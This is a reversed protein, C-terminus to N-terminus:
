PATPPFITEILRSGNTSPALETAPRGETVYWWRADTAGELIFRRILGGGPAERARVFERVLLGDLTYRFEVGTGHLVYGKFEYVPVRSPDGRRLPPLTGEERYVVPGLLKAPTTFKGGVGPRVPTLDLFGGTWAYAVGGRVPDYCFNVGGPLGIAFSSPSVELPLYTREILVEAPLRTSLLVFATFLARARRWDRVPTAGPRNSRQPSLAM